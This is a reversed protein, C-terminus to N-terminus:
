VTDKTTIITKKRLKKKESVKKKEKLIKEKASRPMSTPIRRKKERNLERLRKQLRRLALERNKSQLRHETAIVKIGSAPHIIKVATEKKNKRQGGPGSSKFFRIEIERKLEELDTTYKKKGSM